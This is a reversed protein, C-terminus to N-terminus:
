EFLFILIGTLLLKFDVSYEVLNKRVLSTIEKLKHAEDQLLLIILM